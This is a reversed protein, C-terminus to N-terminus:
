ELPTVFDLILKTVLATNEPAMIDGALVHNTHNVNHTIPMLAKVRAGLRAYANEVKKVNIVTDNPSYIVLVPKHINEM